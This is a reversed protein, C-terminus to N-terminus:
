EDEGHGHDREWSLRGGVVEVLTGTDEELRWGVDGMWWRKEFRRRVEVM